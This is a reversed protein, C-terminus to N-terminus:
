PAAVPDQNGDTIEEPTAHPGQHRCSALYTLPSM